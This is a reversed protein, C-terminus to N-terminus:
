NLINILFHSKEHQMKISKEEEDKCTRPRLPM